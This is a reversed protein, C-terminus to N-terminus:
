VIREVGKEEEHVVSTKKDDVDDNHVQKEVAIVAKEALEKDEFVIVCILWGSKIVFLYCFKCFALEELTRGSTEPYLFYIFLFEFAIWGSYIAFYKWDIAKLAIPNVNQSFFGGIKGFVQEIGIGRTRQAYPFLEILFALSTLIHTQPELM